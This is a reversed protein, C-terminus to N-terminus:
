PGALRGVRKVVAPWAARLSELHGRLETFLQVDITAVLKLERDREAQSTGMIRILENLAERARAAAHLLDALDVAMQAVDEADAVEARTLWADVM